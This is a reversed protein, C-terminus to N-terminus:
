CNIIDKKTRAAAELLQTYTLDGSSIKLLPAALLRDLSTLDFPTSFLALGRSRYEALLRQLEENPLAFRRLMELRDVQISSVYLEPVFTQLKVADAGAAFATEIMIEALELSGEHNNGIEAVLAIRESTDINGIRM